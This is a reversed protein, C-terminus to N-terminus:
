LELHAEELIKSVEVPLESFELGNRSHIYVERSKKREL